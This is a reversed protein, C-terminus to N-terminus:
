VLCALGSVQLLTRFRHEWLISGLLLFGLHTTGLLASVGGHSTRLAEPAPPLRAYCLAVALRAPGSGLAAKRPVGQPVLSQPTCRKAGPQGGGM